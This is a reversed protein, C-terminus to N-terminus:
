VILLTAALGQAVTFLWMLYTNDFTVRRTAGLRGTLRRALTYVVMLVVLLVHLGQWALMAWVTAGYAHAAPDAGRAAECQVWFSLALLTAGALLAAIFGFGRERRLARSSIAALAGSALLVLVCALDHFGGRVESGAPPWEAAMVWLYFYSFVLSAFVTGNLLALM